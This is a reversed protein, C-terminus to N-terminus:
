KNKFYKLWIRKTEQTYKYLNRQNIAVNLKPFLYTFIMKNEVSDSDTPSSWYLRSLWPIEKSGVVPIGQAISDALVINFTESFSVQLSIDMTECLEIFKERPMWEHVILQHGSRHVQQFLAKLNNLVTDGRQEVRGVNIHFKLKKGVFDAFKIAAMAQLLHNKMPRVAGFCSVNIHEKKRNFYRRKYVQPYYNPLYIVHNKYRNRSNPYKSKYYVRLEELMRPSNAAVRVNKFAFYDGIWDMAVGENALFPLDSHLRIIWTVNPHLKCLVTFKSPVVWLAEIIVHTPKYQHVERDIDNNDKVVVLKTDVDNQKLMEYMYWASNLLGTSMGNGSHKVGNYDHRRKLVFLVRSNTM